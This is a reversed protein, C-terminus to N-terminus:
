GAMVRVDVLWRGDGARLVRRVMSVPGQGILVGGRARAQQASMGVWVQTGTSPGQPSVSATVPGCSTSVGAARTRAWTLDDVARAQDDVWGAATVWPRSDDLNTNAPAEAPAYCWAAFYAAAVLEPNTFDGPEASLRPPDPVRTLTPLM